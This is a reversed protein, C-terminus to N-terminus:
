SLKFIYLIKIYLKIYLKYYIIFINFINFYIVEYKNKVVPKKNVM